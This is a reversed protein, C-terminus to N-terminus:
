FPHGGEIGPAANGGKGGGGHGQGVIHQFLGEVRGPLEVGFGGLPQGTEHADLHLPRVEGVFLPAGLVGVVQLIRIKLAKLLQVLAAAPKDANHIDGGLQGARRFEDGLGLIQAGDGDGVGVGVIVMGSGGDIGAGSVQGVQVIGHGGDVVAVGADDGSRHLSRANLGLDDAVAVMDVGGGDTQGEGHEAVPHHQDGIGAAAGTLRLSGSELQAALVCPEPAAHGLQGVAGNGAGGGIQPSAQM